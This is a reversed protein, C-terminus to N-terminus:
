PPPCRLTKTFEAHETQGDWYALNLEILTLWEYNTCEDNVMEIIFIGNNGVVSIIGFPNPRLQHGTATVIGTIGRNPLTAIGAEDTTVNFEAVDDVFTLFHGGDQHEESQYFRLEVNSLADGTKDVIKVTAISPTDFLYEGYFGRRHGYNSNLGGATHLGVFPLAHDAMIDHIDYSFRVCEWDSNWYDLGCGAFQMPRNADPLRVKRVDLGMQYIDIMGLKHLLEHLLGGDVEMRARYGELTYAATDHWLGWWGDVMLSLEHKTGLNNEAAILYLETRVRDKVGAEILMENFRDINNHFWLEPSQIEGAVDASLKLSEYSEESFYIGLTHGKIWDHVSNNLEFIEDIQNETDVEFTVVPNSDQNPWVYDITIEASGGSALGEHIGTEIVDGDFSWMFDFQESDTDGFNSVHAILQVTDGPAPNRKISPNDQCLVPGKPEDFPYPCWFQNALYSVTYVPYRPQREVYRTVLDIGGEFVPEPSWAIPPEDCYLLDTDRQIVSRLHDPICGQLYNPFIDLTEFSSNNGLQAPIVGTLANGALSLHRLNPLEAIEGPIEGTFGNRNLRLSILNTLNGMEPPIDGSFQNHSLTLRELRRLQTLEVPIPGSLKNVQLNLLVLRDLNAIEHPIGGTFENEGLSLTDLTTMDWLGVPMAGVLRNVHLYLERLKHLNEINDPIEGTLQNNSLDLIELDVLEGIEPPFTGTMGRGKLQLAVIESGSGAVSVGHWKRVPIGESWNLKADGALTRKINLLTECQQVLTANSQPRPVAIGNACNAPKTAIPSDAPYQKIIEIKQIVDGQQVASHHRSESDADILHMGKTVKGFVSHCAVEDRECDKPSGDLNLDDRDPLPALTIYFQSGNTGGPPNGSNVMAVVGAADHRLEPHFEDEIVYGPGGDGTGTPDGTQVLEGPVVRHFTLGDYFGEEVLKIFNDVTIPARVAFLKIEIEPYPEKELYVLAYFEAGEIIAM